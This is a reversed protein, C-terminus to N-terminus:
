TNQKPLHFPLLKKNRQIGHSLVNLLNFMFVLHQVVPIMIVPWDLNTWAQLSHSQLNSARFTLCSHISGKLYRMIRKVGSWHQLGPNGMFQALHNVCYALDPRTSTVLYQLSGIASSYPVNSILAIEDSTTPMMDKSYKLGAEIPTHVPKCSAMNFKLLIDNIYKPQSLYLEKKTRDRRVQIGLIYSLDLNDTMSFSSSLLQTHANLFKLDNSILILDDVYLGILIVFSKSRKIYVNPDSICKVYGNSLLHHNLKEYWVRPAQKLGYLSKLLCCVKDENRPLVFGEPQNIFIEEKLDGYLFATVVDM